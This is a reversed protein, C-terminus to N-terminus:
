FLVCLAIFIYYCKSLVILMLFTCATFLRSSVNPTVFGTFELMSMTAEVDLVTRVWRTVAPRLITKWGAYHLTSRLQTNFPFKGKLPERKKNASLTYFLTFMCKITILSHSVNRALSVKTFSLNKWNQVIKILVYTRVDREKLELNRFHSLSYIWNPAVPFLWISFSVWTTCINFVFSYLLSTFLVM